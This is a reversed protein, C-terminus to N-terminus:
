DMAHNKRWLIKDIAYGLKYMLNGEKPTVEFILMNIEHYNKCDYNNPHHSNDYDQKCVGGNIRVDCTKIVRNLCTKM